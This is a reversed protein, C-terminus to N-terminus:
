DVNIVVGIRWEGIGQLIKYDRFLSLSIGTPAQGDLHALSIQGKRDERKVSTGSELFFDVGESLIM